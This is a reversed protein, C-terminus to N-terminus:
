VQAVGESSVDDEVNDLNSQQKQMQRQQRQQRRQQEEQEHLQHEELQAAAGGHVPCGVCHCTLADCSCEGGWQMSCGAMLMTREDHSGSSSCCGSSSINSRVNRRRLHCHAPCGPCACLAPDCTCPGGVSMRCGEDFARHYRPRGLIRPLMQSRPRKGRTNTLPPPKYCRLLLSSTVVSVSSLAMAFGAVEPPLVVKLIPFFLGAAIPIGLTNFGLAWVFNLRIRRFVARSLDIASVVDTLASRCLVVEAAEIAVDTGAGIAVGLNAQALSPADNVGDGVMCVCAGQTQLRTVEQIKQHPLLESLVRSNHIGVLEAMASAARRNDGTLMWVRVGQDELTAVAEGAEERPTDRAAILGCLLGDVGICMVTKGQAELKQMVSEVGTVRELDIANDRIFARTGVHISYGEVTCSAGKGPYAQFDSAASAALTHIGRREAERLIAKALHHESNKEASAVLYIMEQIMADNDSAASSRSLRGFQGRLTIIDSVVPEGKTLTGTKDFIVDTVSHAVELAAGGKILIGLKAGVGTGVMVATPTALGLACPCAIVLVAISFMMSLVLDTSNGPYWEKPIAGFSTLCVWVLFTVAAILLVAPAFIGSIWDAFAQVPAKSMQADEVLKAIRSLATDRGVHTIRVLLAGDINVTGGFVRDGVRKAAPSSEGTLMSEDITSVGSTVVGDAPVKGGPVIQVVDGRGLLEVPIERAESDGEELLLASSSSLDALRALAESTRAKALSELLKGLIVFTILVASTEFFHAGHEAAHLDKDDEHHGSLESGEKETRASAVAYVVAFASYFYAASTGMAVLFDMGLNRHKLGKWAAVYFKSGIVFQVPTALTWLLIASLPLGAYVQKSFVAHIAPFRPFVMAILTCPVAFLASFFFSIAYKRIEIRRAQRLSTGSPPPCVAVEHGTSELSRVIARIGTVTRNHKVVLNPREDGRRRHVRAEIWAFELVGPSSRLLEEVGSPSSTNAVRLYTEIVDVLPHENEVSDTGLYTADFGIEETAMVMANETGGPLLSKMFVIEARNTLLSVSVSVVGPLNLLRREVAAVCASCTMGQVELSGRVQREVESTLHECEFGIEEVAEVIVAEDVTARNFQVRAREAMLTVQADLVGRTGRLAGEVAAVCASCTMGGVQFSGTVVGVMSQGGQIATDAEM